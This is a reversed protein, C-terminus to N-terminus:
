ITHKLDYMLCATGGQDFLYQLDELKIRCRGNLGWYLGWSNRIRFRDVDGDVGIVVGDILACHGGRVSGTPYIYGESDVRDMGDMWDVGIPTPGHNLIHYALTMANDTFGYWNIHGDALLVKAGARVSTGDYDDGPWEDNDKAREYIDFGMENGYEHKVPASNLFGTMGFGVCAGEEGQDLQIPNAWLQKGSSRQIGLPPSAADYDRKDPVPSWGLSKYEAEKESFTLTGFEELLQQELSM